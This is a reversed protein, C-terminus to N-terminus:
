KPNTIPPECGTDTAASQSVENAAAGRSFSQHQAVDCFIRITEINM